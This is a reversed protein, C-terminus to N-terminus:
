TSVFTGRKAGVGVLEVSERANVEGVTKGAITKARPLVVVRVSVVSECLTAEKAPKASGNAKNGFELQANDGPYVKSGTRDGVLDARNGNTFHNSGDGAFEPLVGGAVGEWGLDVFDDPVVREIACSIDRDFLLARLLRTPVKMSVQHSVVDKVGIILLVRFGQLESRPAYAKPNPLSKRAQVGAAVHSRHPQVLADKDNLLNPVSVISRGRVEM